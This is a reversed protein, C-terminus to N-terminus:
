WTGGLLVLTYTCCFYWVLAGGLLYAGSQGPYEWICYLWYGIVITFYFTFISTEHDINRFQTAYVRGTAWVPM